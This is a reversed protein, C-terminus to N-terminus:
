AVTPAPVMLSVSLPRWRRASSARSSCIDFSMARPKSVTVPWRTPIVPRIAPSSIRMAASSVHDASVVFRSSRM